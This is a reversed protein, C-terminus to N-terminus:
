IKNLIDDISENPNSDRLIYKDANQETGLLIHTKHVFFRKIASLLLKASKIMGPPKIFSPIKIPANPKTGLPSLKKMVAMGTAGYHIELFLDDRNAYFFEKVAKLDGAIDQYTSPSPKFGIPSCCVPDVDHFTIHGGEKVYPYWNMLQKCVHEYSHLSDIHLLDVGNKIEPAKEQIYELDTDDTQIFTWVPSEATDHFDQIDLSVMKGRKKETMSLLLCNSLGAATGCEVVLPKDINELLDAVLCHHTAVKGWLGKTGVKSRIEDPNYKKFKAM